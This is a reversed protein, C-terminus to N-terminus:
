VISKEQGNYDMHWAIFVTPEFCCENTWMRSVFIQPSHFKVAVMDSYFFQGLLSHGNCTRPLNIWIAKQKYFCDTWLIPIVDIIHQTWIM